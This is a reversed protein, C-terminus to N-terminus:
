RNSTSVEGTLAFARLGTVGVGALGLEALTRGGAGLDRGLMASAIAILGDIVPTPVAVEDGISAALVHAYPIDETLYRTELADPGTAVFSQVLRSARVVDFLDPGADPAFGQAILFDRYRRRDFLGLAERIALLEADVAEIVRVIARTAGEGWLLMGGTRNQLTGANGLMTPVHDIANYNVLVTEWISEAPTIFPWMERVLGLLGETQAAPVSALLVGGIKRDAAVAGPGALRAVYPLTNTEGVRVDRRGIGDLHLRAVLAGGGEGVFLMRQDEPVLAALTEIWPRHGFAPVVVFLVDGDRAARAVDVVEVAEVRPGDWGSNVVVAGRERVPGLNAAFEDLDAMQVRHGNRALDAAVALAGAGSGFVSANM